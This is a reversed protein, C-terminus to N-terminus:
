ECFDEVRTAWLEAVAIRHPSGYVVAKAVREDTWLANLEQAAAAEDVNALTALEATTMYAEPSELLWEYLEQELGGDESGKHQEPQEQEPPSVYIGLWRTAKAKDQFNPVVRINRTEGPVLKAAKSVGPPIYITDGAEPVVAFGDHNLTLNTITAIYTVPQETM